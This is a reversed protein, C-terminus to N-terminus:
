EGKAEWVSVARALVAGAGDVVVHGFAGPEGAVTRATVEDGLKAAQKYEIDLKRPVANFYMAEPLSELMWELYHVNNVHRNADIESRRVTFTKEAVGEAGAGVEPFREACLGFNLVGAHALAQITEPPRLLRGKIFDVYLWESSATLLKEGEATELAFQREALLKRRVGSPWTTLVCAERWAPPRVIDLALRGLMWTHGESQLAQIGVGLEAAHLGAVEQLANALAPLSAEFRVGCASAPFTIPRSLLHDPKTEANEFNMVELM